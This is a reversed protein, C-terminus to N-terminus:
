LVPTLHIQSFNFLVSMTEPIGLTKLQDFHVHSELFVTNYVKQASGKQGYFIM